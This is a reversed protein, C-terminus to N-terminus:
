IAISALIFFFFIYLFSVFVEWFPFKFRSLEKDKVIFFFRFFVSDEIKTPPNALFSGLM